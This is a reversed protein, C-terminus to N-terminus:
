AAQEEVEDPMLHEFMRGFAFAPTVGTLRALYILRAVLDVGLTEARGSRVVSLRSRDFDMARSLASLNPEGSKSIWEPNRSVLWKLADPRLRLAPRAPSM